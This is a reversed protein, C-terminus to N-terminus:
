TTLKELLQSIIDVAKSSPYLRNVEVADWLLPTGSEDVVVRLTVVAVGGTTAKSRIARIVKFWPVLYNYDGPTKTM